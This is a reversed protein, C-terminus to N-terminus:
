EKGKESRGWSIEYSFGALLFQQNLQGWTCNYEIHPSWKGWQTLIGAGTNFSWFKAKIDQVFNEGRVIEKESTHSFGTLPYFKWNKSLPMLYHFNFDFDWASKETEETGVIKKVTFFRNMEVGGVFRESFHYFGSLNLGNMDSRMNRIAAVDFSAAHQAQLSFSVIIFFLMALLRHELYKKM